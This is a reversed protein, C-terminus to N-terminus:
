YSPISFGIIIALAIVGSVLLTRLALINGIIKPINKENKSMQQVAITFLGLDAAIGFFTLFEYVLIYEGYGEVSLYNTTIKVVALGLIATIIKGILQAVTNSLIKRAISMPM